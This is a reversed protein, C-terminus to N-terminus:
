RIKLERNGYTGARMADLDAQSPFPDAPAPIGSEDDARIEGALKDDIRKQLEAADWGNFPKKGLLEEYDKRLKELDDAM